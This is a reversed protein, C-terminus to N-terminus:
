HNTCLHDMPLLYFVPFICIGTLSQEHVCQITTLLGEGLLIYLYAHWCQRVVPMRLLRKLIVLMQLADAETFISMVRSGCPINPCFQM